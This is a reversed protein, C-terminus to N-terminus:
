ASGSKRSSVRRARRARLRHETLDTRVKSRNATQHLPDSVTKCRARVKSGRRLRINRVLAPFRPHPNLCADPITDSDAYEGHPAASPVTFDGVGLLPFSQCRLCFYAFCVYVLAIVFWTQKATLCMRWVPLHLLLCGQGEGRRASEGRGVGAQYSRLWAFCALARVVTSLATVNPGLAGLLRARRLRMNQEIQLLDAVRSGYPASPTAEIMWSGFEPHWSCDNYTQGEDRYDANQAELKGLVDYANLPVRVTKTVPDFAILHFEIEDGYLLTDNSRDAVQKLINLFQQIGHKRVYDLFSVSETFSLPTGAFPFM